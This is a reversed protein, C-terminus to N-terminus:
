IRLSLTDVPSHKALEPNERSLKDWKEKTLKFWMADRNGVNNIQRKEAYEKWNGPLNEFGYKRVFNIDTSYDGAIEDTFIWLRVERAAEGGYGKYENFIIDLAASFTQKGIGKHRLEPNTMFTEISAIRKDKPVYPDGRWRITLVGVPELAANIAVLPTIKKPDEDKNRYYYRFKDVYAEVGTKDRCDKPPEPAFDLHKRTESDAVWKAIFELDNDQIGRLKVVRAREATTLKERTTGESKGTM